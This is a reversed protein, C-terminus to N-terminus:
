KILAHSKGLNEKWVNLERLEEPNGCRSHLLFHQCCRLILCMYRMCFNTFTVSPFENFAKTFILVRTTSLRFRSRGFTFCLQYKSLLPLHGKIRLLSNCNKVIYYYIVKYTSRDNVVWFVVDPTQGIIKTMKIYKHVNVNPRITNFGANTCYAVDFM